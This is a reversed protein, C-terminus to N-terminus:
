KARRAVRIQARSQSIQRDRIALLEDSNAPKKIAQALQESAVEEDLDAVPVARNTLVSVINDAVQVFGGDVYYTSTEGGTDIRMEGYGLRGIMPSHLPAIGAEGDFLAGLGDLLRIISM